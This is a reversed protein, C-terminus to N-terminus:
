SFNLSTVKGLALLIINFYLPLVLNDIENTLAEILSVILSTICIVLFESITLIKSPDLYALVVVSGIVQAVFAAGTGEYSKRNGPWKRRGWISGVISAASDGLGISIAGSSAAFSSFSDGGCTLWVPLACGILLYIHTLTLPGFDKEDRFCDFLFEIWSALRNSKTM